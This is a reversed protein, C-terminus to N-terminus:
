VSTGAAEPRLLILPDTNVNLSDAVLELDFEIEFYEYDSFVFRRDTRIRGGFREWDDLTESYHLREILVRLPPHGHM